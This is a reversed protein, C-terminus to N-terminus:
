TVKNLLFMTDKARQKTWEDLVHPNQLIMTKLYNKCGMMRLQTANESNGVVLQYLAACAYRAITPHTLGQQSGPLHHSADSEDIGVYKQMLDMVLQCAGGAALATRCVSNAALVTVARLGAEVVEVEHIHQLLAAIVLNHIGAAKLAVNATSFKNSTAKYALVNIVWLGSMCIRSDAAHQQLIDAVAVTIGYRILNAKVAYNETLYRLASLGAGVVNVSWSYTRILHMLENCETASLSINYDDVTVVHHHPQQKHGHSEAASHFWEETHKRTPNMIPDDITDMVTSSSSSSSSAGLQHNNVANFVASHYDMLVMSLANFGAEIVNLATSHVHMLRIISSIVSGGGSRGESAATNSANHACALAIKHEVSIDGLLGICQLGLIVLAENRSHVRLLHTPVSVDAFFIDCLPLSLTRIPTAFNSTLLSIILRLGIEALSANTMAGFNGVNHGAVSRNDHYTSVSLDTDDNEIVAPRLLQVLLECVGCDFLANRSEVSYESELVLIRCGAILMADYIAYDYVGPSNRIQICHNLLTITVSCIKARTFAEIHETVFTSSEISAHNGSVFRGSLLEIVKFANMTVDHWGSSNGHVQQTAHYDLVQIILECLKCREELKLGPLEGGVCIGDVNSSHIDHGRGSAVHADSHVCLKSLCQLISLASRPKKWHIRLGHYIAAFVGSDSSTLIERQIPISALGSIALIGSELCFSNEVFRLCLSGLVSSLSLHGLVQKNEENCCLLALVLLGPSVVSLLNEHQLIASVAINCLAENSTLSANKSNTNNTAIVLCSSLAIMAVEVVSLSSIPENSDEGQRKSNSKGSKSGPTFPSGHVTTATSSLSSAGSGPSHIASSHLALPSKWPLLTPINSKHSFQRNVREQHLNYAITSHIKVIEAITDMFGEQNFLQKAQTLKQIRENDPHSKNSGSIAVSKLINLSRVINWVMSATSMHHKLQYLWVRSLYSSSQWKNPSITVVSDGSSEHHPGSHATYDDALDTLFQLASDESDVRFYASDINYHVGDETTVGDSAESSPSTLATLASHMKCNHSSQRAGEPSRLDLPLVIHPKQEIHANRRVPTSEIDAVDYQTITPSEANNRLNM